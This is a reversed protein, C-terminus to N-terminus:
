RSAPSKLRGVAGPGVEFQMTNFMDASSGFFVDAGRSLLRRADRWGNLGGKLARMTDISPVRKKGHLTESTECDPALSAIMSPVFIGSVNKRARDERPEACRLQSITQLFAFAMPTRNTLSAGVSYRRE